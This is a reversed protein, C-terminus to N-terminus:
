GLDLRDKSGARNFYVRTDPKIKKMPQKEDAYGIPLVVLPVLNPKVGLLKQLFRVKGPTYTLTALGEREAALLLYAVALWTSGLWYPATNDGFVCILYPADELFPKEPTIGKKKLWRQIKVPANRHWQTDAVECQARIQRKVEPDDVVIMEYGSRDAGSPAYFAAKLVRKLVHRSFPKSKFARISRRKSMLRVLRPEQKAISKPMARVYSAYEFM